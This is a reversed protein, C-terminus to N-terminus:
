IPIELRQTNTRMFSKTEILVEVFIRSRIVLGNCTMLDLCRITQSSNQKVIGNKDVTKGHKVEIHEECAKILRTEEFQERKVEEMQEYYDSM